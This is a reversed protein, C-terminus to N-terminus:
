VAVGTKDEILKIEAERVELKSLKIRYTRDEKNLMLDLFRDYWKCNKKADSVVVEHEVLAEEITHHRIQTVEEGALFAMTEFLVPKQNGWAADIGLFITSIWARKGEVFFWDKAVDSVRPHKSEAFSGNSRLKYFIPMRM